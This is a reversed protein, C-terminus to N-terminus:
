EFIAEAFFPILAGGGGAGVGAFLGLGRQPLASWPRM